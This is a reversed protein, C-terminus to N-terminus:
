LDGVGGLLEEGDCRLHGVDNLALLKIEDAEWRLTSISGNYLRFPNREPPVGLLAKLAATILGGHAVVAVCGHGADRIAQFAEAGRRMLDRRSEGRPIRFDPDQDRWRQGERPHRQEIEDWSLGQFIGANLEM